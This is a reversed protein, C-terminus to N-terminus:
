LNTLYFKASIQVIILEERIENCGFLIYEMSIPVINNFCNFLSTRDHQYLPCELFFHIADEFLHGCVCRPDTKLNVRYLDANLGSCRHRLKPVSWKVQLPPPPPPTHKKTENLIKKESLVLTVINIKKIKKVFNLM